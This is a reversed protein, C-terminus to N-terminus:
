GACTIIKQIGGEFVIADVLLSVVLFGEEPFDFYYGPFVNVGYREILELCLTEEPKIRPVRIIAYWGGECEFPSCASGSLLANKFFAYNKKVRNSIQERINNGAMMLEPLAIQVPTNVSLFTDFIIELRQSAERVLQSPGNIAIWGLKMQPMGAIKSIGNLTFTLIDSSLCMSALRNADDNFGFDIFVEDVILALNNKKALSKIQEYDNKKLFMGTPNHPHILVIARTSATIANKMSAIDIHWGHDYFLKYSLVNVDNLQALYDFLPYSPTPILISEGANCLLKFLTSYAESTSSTLFINSPNIASGRKRYYEAVVERASLLGRPDPEYQLIRKNSFASLITQEPYTFGCETPNSVTLDFVPLGSARRAELCETIQNHQFQWNTRSSFNM